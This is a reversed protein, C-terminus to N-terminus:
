VTTSFLSWSAYCCELKRPITESFAAVSDKREAFRQGRRLLRRGNSRCSRVVIDVVRRRRVLAHLAQLLSDDGM